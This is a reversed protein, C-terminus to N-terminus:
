VNGIIYRVGISADADFRSTGSFTYYPIADIFVNFPSNDLTYELGLNGAISFNGSIDRKGLAIFLGAGYYWNLTPIDATLRHHIQHFGGFTILSQGGVRTIGTIAELAGKESIFAKYSGSFYTGIRAGAASNYDQGVVLFPLSISLFLFLFISIWNKM